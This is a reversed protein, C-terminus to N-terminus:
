GSPMPTSNNTPNRIADEADAPDIADEADTPCQITIILIKNNHASAGEYLALPGM